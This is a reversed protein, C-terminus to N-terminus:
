FWYYLLLIIVTGLACLLASAYATKEAAATITKKHEAKNMLPNALALLGFLICPIFYRGQVGYAVTGGVYGIVPNYQIYIGFIAGLSTILFALLSFIRVRPSVSGTGCIETVFVFALVVYFLIVFVAPFPLTLWGLVGFFQNAWEKFFTLTTDIIVRPFVWAINSFFFASQEALRPDPTHLGATVSSSLRSPILYFVAGITIIIGALTIYKKWSGIRKKPIALLVVILAGYFFKTGFLLACSLCIMVTDKLTVLYGEGGFLIKMVYAFFLFASPILLADYSTSAVQHLTMPMLALLLMTNKLVPTTKIAERTVAVAFALNVLRAAILCFHVNMFPFVFRIVALGIGPVAYAVPNLSAFESAFFESPAYSEASFRFFDGFNVTPHLVDASYFRLFEAESSSLYVGVAGDKVSPLFQFHSLKLVNLFHAQEDAVTLPPMIFAIVAGLLVAIVTYVTEPKLNCIRRLVALFGREESTRSIKIM